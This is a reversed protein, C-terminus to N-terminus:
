TVCTKKSSRVTPQINRYSHKPPCIQWRNVWYSVNGLEAQVAKLDITKWSQM